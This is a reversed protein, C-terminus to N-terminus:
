INEVALLEVVVPMSDTSQKWHCPGVGHERQIEETEAVCMSDMLVYHM